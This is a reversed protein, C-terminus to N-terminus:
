LFAKDVVKDHLRGPPQGGKIGKKERKDEKKRRNEKQKKL